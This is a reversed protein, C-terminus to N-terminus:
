RSFITRLRDRLGWRTVLLLAEAVIRFSMKSTGAVRDRFEIPIETIQGGVRAVRYTMEVQFGYGNARVTDLDVARLADARYARFGSTADRTPLGLMVKAYGCGIRSIMRRAFPWDATQGGDVYRSGIALDSGGAIENLLEPLALPDHSLDADMEVLVEYGRELGWRFGDRYASGLGMPGLRRLVAIRGIDRAAAEALDATGDPSGDDVVLLQADPVAVRVRRLVADINDRENYTPLVILTSSRAPLPRLRAVPREYDPVTAHMM